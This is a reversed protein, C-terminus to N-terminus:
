GSFALRAAAVFAEIKAPDKTGNTEVGSSVDVGLPQVLKIAEGANDPNLGGGLMVPDVACVGAALQWDARHGSGGPVAASYGDLLYAIPPRPGTRYRVMASVVHEVEEGSRPRLAKIVPRSLLAISEPSEQGHLQLLDVDAEDAIAEVEAPKADVFVGVTLVDRGQAANRAAVVCTRANSASVQRRAPAFIFGILDAGAAAAAAAHTPERLGCIKIVGGRTLLRSLREERPTSENM